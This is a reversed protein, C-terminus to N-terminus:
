REGEQLALGTRYRVGKAGRDAGFGKKGLAESLERASMPPGRHGAADYWTRFADYLATVPVRWQPHAPDVRCRDELFAGVLDETAKYDKVADLVAPPPDLRRVRWEALGQLAWNLIGPGEAQLKGKLHPDQESDPIQVAFPVVLTRRWIGHDTGHVRLKHNTGLWLKHTPQFEFFDQNMFRAKVTDGGTLRKVKAEDLSRGEKVESSTALRAGQLDAVDTPHGDDHQRAELFGPALPRAYTGLVWMLLELFTSKGNAGGGLLVWFKQESVDGTLCYGASRRLFAITDGGDPFIQRLFGEWLPCPAGPLYDVGGLHTLLDARRPPFVRGSRLDITVNRANFLWPDADLDRPAVARRPLARAESNMAAIRGAAQSRMHWGACAKHREKLQEKREPDDCADLERRWHHTEDAIRDVTGHAMSHVGRRDDWAWRSGDWFLWRDRADCWRVDAGFLMDFRRANGLDTYPLHIREPLTDIPVEESPEDADDYAEIPPEEPRVPPRAGWDPSDPPLERPRQRGDRLSELVHREPNAAGCVHGAAILSPAVQDETAGVGDLYGGITFSERVLTDHREGPSASEIRRCAAALMGLLRRQNRETATPAQVPAAKPRPPDILDLLDAPAPEPDTRTTAIYRRGSRHLSPALVVYGGVARIDVKPLVKSRNRLPRSAPFTFWRHEGGGGTLVTYTEPLAGHAAEWEALSARGEDGDVDVVVIGVEGVSGGINATPWRKWWDRIQQEDTTADKLGQPTRPHKGPSSCDEHGCTCAGDRLTHVPFVPIGRQAWAVAAAELTAGVLPTGGLGNHATM